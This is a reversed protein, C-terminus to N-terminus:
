QVLAPVLPGTSTSNGVGGQSACPSGAASVLGIYELSVTSPGGGSIPHLMLACGWNLIPVAQGPGFRSCEVIPVPVIRRDASMTALAAAQRVTSANPSVDLGTISNGNSVDTGYPANAPRRVTLFNAAANNGSPWNTSTYGYGSRDPVPSAPGTSPISPHYIGFRTNWSRSLSSVAGAQGVLAGPPVTCAGTGELLAALESAGGAFPSFDIWGWNGTLQGGSGYLASIWQGPTLGYPATTTTACLSVPIAACPSQSPALTATALSRVTNGGTAVPSLLRMLKPMMGSEAITCRVYRMNGPPPPVAGVWTGTLSDSFQVTIASDAIPTGNFNVENRRAVFRGSNEAIPFQSAPIAPAGTLDRSAALACADAANQTETKSVYLRGSDIALGAAALVVVISLGVIVAVVGRQRHNSRNTLTKTNRQSQM